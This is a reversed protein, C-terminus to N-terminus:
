KDMIKISEFVSKILSKAERLTKNEEDLEDIKSNLRIFERKNSEIFESQDIVSNNYNL